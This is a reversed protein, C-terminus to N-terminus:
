PFLASTQPFWPVGGAVRHGSPLPPRVSNIPRRTPGTRITARTRARARWPVGVTGRREM